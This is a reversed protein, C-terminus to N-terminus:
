AEAARGADAPALRKEMPHGRAADFPTGPAAIDIYGAARYLRHATGTSALHLTSIGRAAAEEELRKPLGRSVGRSRADPSADNLGVWRGAELLAVGLIASGEAAVFLGGTAVWRRM